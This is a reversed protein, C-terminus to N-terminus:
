LTDFVEWAREVLDGRPSKLKYASVSVAPALSDGELAILAGSRLDASALREPLWAVGTGDLAVRRLSESLPSEFVKQLKAGLGTAVEGVVRDSFSFSTYSLYPVPTDGSLWDDPLAARLSPSCVPLMRDDGLHKVALQDLAAGDLVTAGTEYTLMIDAVGTLLADFYEEIGQISPLISLSAQPNQRAFLRAVRPLYSIALTHLTVIRVSTQDQAHM